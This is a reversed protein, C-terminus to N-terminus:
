AAQKAARTARHKEEAPKVEKGKNHRQDPTNFFAAFDVPAFEVPHYPRRTARLLNRSVAAYISVPRLGCLLAAEQVTLPETLTTEHHKADHDISVGLGDDFLGVEIAGLKHCVPCDGVRAGSDLRAGRKLTAKRKTM